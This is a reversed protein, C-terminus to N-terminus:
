LIFVTTILIHKKVAYLYIFSEYFNTLSKYITKAVIYKLSQYLENQIHNWKLHLGYFVM